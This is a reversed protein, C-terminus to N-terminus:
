TVDELSLRDYKEKIRGIEPLIATFCEVLQPDFATGSGQRIEQVGKDFPYAEKYPRVNTLADFSDCLGCIRGVVPIEEGKLGKPYGLGDWREHHTLVIESAMKMIRSDSGSLLRAGIDVHTKMVDWEEPTLKAPKLLISDPIAVKGIDHLSSAILVMGAEEKSFGVQTALAAAYHSMRIIHMGTERDRYESVRALRQAMELQTDLSDKTRRRIKEELVKNQDRVRHHLMHVEIINRVRVLVEVRDYPKNLFDKAGSELALYRLDKNDLQTLVLVPLYDQGESLGKLQTMVQFGDLYPMHLDLILVDPKLDDYTDAADRSDSVCTINNYGAKRLMEALLRNSVEQDDVILIKASLIEEEPIMGM